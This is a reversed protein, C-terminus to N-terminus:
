FAFQVTPEKSKPAREQLQKLVETKVVEKPSPGNKNSDYELQVLVGARTQTVVYSDGNFTYYFPLAGDIRAGEQDKDTLRYYLTNEEPKDESNIGFTVSSHTCNLITIEEYDSKYVLHAGRDEVSYRYIKGQETNFYIFKGSACAYNIDEPVDLAVFKNDSFEYINTRNPYQSFLVLNGYSGVSLSSIVANDPITFSQIKGGSLTISLLTSQFESAERRVDKEESNELFSDSSETVDDVLVVSLTKDSLAILVDKGKGFGSLYKDFSIKQPSKDDMSKYVLVSKSSSDFVAFSGSPSTSLYNNKLSGGFNDNLKKGPSAMGSPDINYATLAKSRLHLSLLGDKYPKIAYSAPEESSDAQVNEVSLARTSLDNGVKIFGEYSDCPFFITQAAANASCDFNSEGLFESQKQPSASLRVTKKSFGGFDYSYLSERAKSTNTAFITYHGKPLAMWKSAGKNLTFTKQSSEDKNMYVSLDDTSNQFIVLTHTFCFVVLSLLSLSLIGFLIYKKESQMDLTYGLQQV